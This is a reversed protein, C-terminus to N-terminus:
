GGKRYMVVKSYRDAPTNDLDLPRDGLVGDVLATCNWNEMETINSQARCMLLLADRLTMGGQIEIEEYRDNDKVM